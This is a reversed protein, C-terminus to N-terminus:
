LVYSNYLAGRSSESSRPQSQSKGSISDQNPQKRKDTRNGM